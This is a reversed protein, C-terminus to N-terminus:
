PLPRVKFLYDAGDRAALEFDPSAEATRILGATDVAYRATHVVVRDVGAKRMVAASEPSPFTGMGDLLAMYDAPAARGGGNVIPRWHATSYYLYDLEMFWQPVRHYTPLSVMGRATALQPVRYIPPVPFPEPKGSPFKIVYYESLMLPVLVVVAIRGAKGLAILREAGFGAFVALGFLVLVAFRAPARLSGLGPLWSVAGFPTWSSEPAVSPGLSLALGIVVLAGYVSALHWRRRRLVSVAGIAGLLLAIWGLHLTTEGWIWRPGTGGRAIWAKGLWTDAPPMLYAAADASYLAAERPDTPPLGGYHRAFPWLVAIGLLAAAALHWVQGPSRKRVARVVVPVLLIAQVIATFVALYWSTLAQLVVTAMWILARAVSPRDSWREFCWVSAPLLWTWVHQLHGHGHLMKYFSFTFVLGGAFAALDDDLYRKLLGHMVLASLLFSLLWVLNYALVPNRTAAYVPLTFLSLGFLHENYALSNAAPYYTNSEFLPLGNLVAHNDWALTWIILRADGQYSATRLNSFNFIPWTMVVTAVTYGLAVVLWRARARGIGAVATSRAAIV